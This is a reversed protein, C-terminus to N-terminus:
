VDMSLGAGNFKVITSGVEPDAESLGTGHITLFQELVGFTFTTPSVSTVEGPSDAWAALPFLLVAFLFSLKRMYSGKLQNPFTSRGLCNPFHKFIQRHIGSHNREGNAVRTANKNHSIPLNNSM